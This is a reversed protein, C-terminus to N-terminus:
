NSWREISRGNIREPTTVHIWSPNGLKIRTYATSPRPINNRFIDWRLLAHRHCTNRPIVMFPTFGRSDELKDKSFRSSM